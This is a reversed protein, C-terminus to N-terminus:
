SLKSASQVRKIGGMPRPALSPAFVARPGEAYIIPLIIRAAGLLLLLGMWLGKLTPRPLVLRGVGYLAVMFFHTVLVSPKPNLGSLLSVPGSSYIGGLALYDFCAQRMEEHAKDGTYCFVQGTHIHTHTIPPPLLPRLPPHAAPLLCLVLHPPQRQM